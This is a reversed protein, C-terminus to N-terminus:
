RGSMALPSGYPVIKNVLVYLTHAGTGGITGSIELNTAASVPLYTLRTEAGPAVTFDRDFVTPFIGSDAGGATDITGTLGFYEYVLDRWIRKGRVTTQLTEYQFTFPDPWDSEGQTRSGTSDVLMFLMTRVFNDIGLLRFDFSGANVVYNQKNWYQVTNSAPPNQAVTNGLKDTTTPDSWGWLQVKVNVSPLATPATSYVDASGALYVDVTFTSSASSNVLSGFADRHVIEIPIKITYGFSGGTSGSGTTASYGPSQRQDKGFAYGGYKWAIYLDFGTMPGVLPKNNVDSLQFSQIANFPANATFAVTASNGAATAVVDLTLQSLFGNPAIQYTPLHQSSATMTATQNYDNKDIVRSGVVFPRTMTPAAQASQGNKTTTKAATGSAPAATTTPATM